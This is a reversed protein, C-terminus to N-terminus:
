STFLCRFKTFFCRIIKQYAIKKKLSTMPAPPTDAYRIVIYKNNNPWQQLLKKQAAITTGTYCM